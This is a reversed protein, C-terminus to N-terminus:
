FAKASKERQLEKEARLWFEVDRGHPQGERQWLAHARQGIEDRSLEGIQAKGPTPKPLDPSAEVPATPLTSKKRRPTAAPQDSTTVRTEKIDTQETKQSTFRPKM